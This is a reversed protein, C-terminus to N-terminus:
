RSKLWESRRGISRPRSFDAVVDAIRLDHGLGRFRSTALRLDGDHHVRDLNELVRFVAQHPELGRRPLRAGGRDGDRNPILVAVLVDLREVHRDCASM